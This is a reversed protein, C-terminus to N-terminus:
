FLKKLYKLVRSGMSVSSLAAGALASMGAGKWTTDNTTLCYGVVGEVAGAADIAVVQPVKNEVSIAEPHNKWWDLSSITIALIPGVCKITPSDSNYGKNDVDAIISLIEKEFNSDSILGENSQQILSILKNLIQFSDDNIINSKFAYDIYSSIHNIFKISLVSDNQLEAIEDDTIITASRTLASLSNISMRKELNLMNRCYWLKSIVYEKDINNTEAKLIYDINFNVVNSIKEDITEGLSTSDSAFNHNANELMGNHLEGLYSYDSVKANNKEELAVSESPTCSSFFFFNTVLVILLYNIKSLKKM